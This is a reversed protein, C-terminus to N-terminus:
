AAMARAALLDLGARGYCSRKILKMRKVQGEVMGNSYTLPFAAQVAAKDGEIGNALGVFRSLRSERAAELWRDLRIPDREALIQRFEQLLRYGSELVGDSGLLRDLVAREEEKLKGPPKLCLWRLSGRGELRIQAATQRPERWPALAQLLLSLSGQYGKDVLERYLQCVNTCGEQWRGQLYTLYPQLTPSRLGGARPHTIRSTPPEQWALLRKVTVRSIGMTRATARIGVGSSALEHVREWRRVRARRRDQRARASASLKRGSSGDVSLDPAQEATVEDAQRELRLPRTALLNDMATSANDALHFRDAVQSAKPIAAAAANAYTGDRDRSFIRVEHHRSLWGALTDKEKGPLVGIVRHSELDVLMTAYSRGKRCAVEDVGIAFVKQPTPPAQRRLLRLLTDGSVPVAMTGALRSGAEGGLYRALELLLAEARATRRALRPLFSGFPEAFTQRPCHLSLCRFRRVTVSLRVVCGSWPLDLPHRHYHAHVTTSLKGCCPCRASEVLSHMTVTVTSGVQSIATRVLGVDSPPSLLTALRLSVVAM